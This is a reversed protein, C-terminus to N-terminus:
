SEQEYYIKYFKRGDNDVGKEIMNRNGHIYVHFNKDLKLVSKFVRSQKKVAEDSIDFKEELYVDHHERYDKDFTRFQEIIEPQQFVEQEFQGMEFSDNNKFYEMSRNLLEIQVTKDTEFVEPVRDTVFKRTMQLFDKTQHFGDHAPQVMLFQDKWYQAESSRNSRDTILVKFGSDDGSHIILCGKDLKDLEIGEQYAIDFGDNREDLQLFYDTHEVKLLGLAEVRQNEFYLGSLHMLMFDGEKIQPHSTNEFLLQALKISLLHASGGSQFFESCLQHVANLQVDGTPSYFEFLGPQCLPPMAFKLIWHRLENDTLPSAQKSLKLSGGNVKNGVRHISLSEIVADQYDFM